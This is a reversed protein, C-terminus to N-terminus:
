ILGKDCLEKNDKFPCFRCNHASPNPQHNTTNHTGDAKFAEGIFENIANYAKNLKVKGSAPKFEQIRSIPFDSQEWIKRKVIFFEVDIDDIPINFQQAFYKKYLILQFQKLEDKKTKDDVCGM